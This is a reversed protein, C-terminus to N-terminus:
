LAKRKIKFRGTEQFHKQKLLLAEIGLLYAMVKLHGSYLTVSRM